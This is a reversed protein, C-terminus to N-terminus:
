IKNWKLMRSWFNYLSYPSLKDQSSSDKRVLSSHLCLSVNGPEIQIAWSRDLSCFDGLIAQVCVSVWILEEVERKMVEACVKWPHPLNYASSYGSSMSWHCKLSTCERTLHFSEFSLKNSNTLFSRLLQFLNCFM